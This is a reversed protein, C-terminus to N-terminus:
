IHILSLIEQSGSTIGVSNTSNGGVVTAVGGTVTVPIPVNQYPLGSQVFAIWREDGIGYDHIDELWDPIGSISVTVPNTTNDNVTVTKSNIEPVLGTSHVSSVFDFTCQTWTDSGKKMYFQKISAVGNTYNLDPSHSYRFRTQTNGDPDQFTWKDIIFITDGTNIEVDSSGAVPRYLEVLDGVDFNDSDEGSGEPSHAYSYDYNFCSINKGRVVYEVEPVTTADEAIECDM